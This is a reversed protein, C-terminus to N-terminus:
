KGTAVVFCKMYDVFDMYNKRDEAFAAVIIESLLDCNGHPLSRKCLNAVDRMKMKGNPCEVIFNKYWKRITQESYRTHSQLYQLDEQSLKPEKYRSQCRGM